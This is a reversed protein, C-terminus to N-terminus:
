VPPGAGPAEQPQTPKPVGGAEPTPANAAGQAGQATPANPAGVPPQPPGSNAAVVSLAGYDIFDEYTIRPDMVNLMDKAMKEQSLGSIQFLMPYMQTRVQIDQAQNRRGSSGAECELYIERSVEARSMEPWVAGPGVIEKVTAADMNMLLIQAGARAMETLLDDLEDIMSDDTSQRSSQAIASETATASSTPGLNAEQTGKTRLFDQFASGTEYLNPDIPSTPFAQLIDGIKQDPGMGEIPVVAHAARASIRKADEETMGGAKVHGPRAAYRHDRLAEGARNIERAMPEGLEVDSPPFPNEPDDLANPAYVFWPWFRETWPEPAM